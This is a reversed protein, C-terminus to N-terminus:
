KQFHQVLAMILGTFGTVIATVIGIMLKTTSTSSEGETPSKRIELGTVKSELKTLEIKQIVVDNRLTVLEARILTLAQELLDAIQKVYDEDRPAM